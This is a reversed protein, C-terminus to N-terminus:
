VVQEELYVFVEEGPPVRTIVPKFFTELRSVLSRKNLHKTQKNQQTTFLSALWLIHESSLIHWRTFAVYWDSSCTMVYFQFVAFGTSCHTFHHASFYLCIYIKIYIFIFYLIRRDIQIKKWTKTKSLLPRTTWDHWYNINTPCWASFRSCLPCSIHLLWTLIVRNLSTVSSGYLSAMSYLPKTRWHYAVM